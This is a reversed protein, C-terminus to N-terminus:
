KAAGQGEQGRKSMKIPNNIAGQTFVEAELYHHFDLFKTQRSICFTFGPGEGERGGFGRWRRVRM